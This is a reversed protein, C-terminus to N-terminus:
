NCPIALSCYRTLKAISSTGERKGAWVEGWFREANVLADHLHAILVAHDKNRGASPREAEATTRASLVFGLSPASSV